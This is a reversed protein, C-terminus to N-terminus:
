DIKEFVINKINILYTNPIEKDTIVLTNEGLNLEVEGLDEYVYASWAGTQAFTHDFSKGNINFTATGGGSNINASYYVKMKYKGAARSMFDFTIKQEARFNEIYADAGSGLINLMGGEVKANDAMVTLISPIEEDDDYIDSRNKVSEPIVRKEIHIARNIISLIEARTVYENPRFSGDEYGSIIGTIYAKIVYDLYKKDIKKYDPILEYYKDLKNPFYESDLSNIIAKAVMERTMAESYDSYDGNEFIGDDIMLRIYPMAWYGNSIQYFIGRWASYIKAFEAASVPNDPRFTGDDYGDLYKKDTCEAIIEEAWHGRCDAFKSGNFGTGGAAGPLGSTGFFSDSNDEDTESSENPKTELEEAEPTAMPEPTTETEEENNTNTDDNDSITETRFSEEAFVKFAPMSMLISFAMLIAAIKKLNVIIVGKM